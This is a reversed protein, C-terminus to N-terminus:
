TGDENVVVAQMVDYVNQGRIIKIFPRMFFNKLRDGVSKRSSPYSASPESQKDDRILDLLRETSSVEDRKAM